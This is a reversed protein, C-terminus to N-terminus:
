RGEDNLEAHSRCVMEEVSEFPISPEREKSIHFLYESNGQPGKSPPFTAGVRRMPRTELFDYIKRCVEIHVTLDRVVGKKGVKGKGAEFQPKVLLLATGGPKM